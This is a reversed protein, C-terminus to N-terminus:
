CVVVGGVCRRGHMGRWGARKGSERGCRNPILYMEREFSRVTTRFLGVDVVLGDILDKQSPTTFKVHEGPAFPQTAYLMLGMFVNGLIERGALGIALGSIGGVALLNNLDFGLAQAGFLAAVLVTVIATLRSAGEIRSVTSM